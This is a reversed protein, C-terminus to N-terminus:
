HQRGWALERLHFESQCYGCNLYDHLARMEDDTLRREPFILLGSQGPSEADRSIGKFKPFGM